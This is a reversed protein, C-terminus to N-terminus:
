NKYPVYAHSSDPMLASADAQLASALPLIAPFPPTRRRGCGAGQGKQPEDLHVAALSRITVNTTYSAPSFMFHM